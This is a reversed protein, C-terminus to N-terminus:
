KACDICVVAEPKVDLRPFAIDQGCKLCAGFSGEKVRVLAAEVQRLRLEHRRRTEMAMHQSQIAEMRTLRGIANDPSVPEGAYKNDALSKKLEERLQLLVKEYEHQKQKEM